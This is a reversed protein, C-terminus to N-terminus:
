KYEDMIGSVMRALRCAAQEANRAMRRAARKLKRPNQAAVMMGAVGVITGAVMGLMIDCPNHEPMDNLM